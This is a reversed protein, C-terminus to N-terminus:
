DTIEVKYAYMADYLKQPIKDKYEDAFKKIMEEKMEKYSYFAEEPTSHYTVLTKGYGNKVSATFRELAKNYSVGIPYEGRASTSKVFLKNIRQPVFICTDPSYIKNGKVLIDKDICMVEDDVNYHNKNYWKEFNAYCLWENCVSCDDYNEYKPYRVKDYCRKIMDAWVRYSGGKSHAKETVHTDGIFGIGAVSPSFGDKVKGRKFNSYRCKKISGTEEFKVTVDFAGNYDVITMLQGQNNYRQEGIREEKINQNTFQNPM